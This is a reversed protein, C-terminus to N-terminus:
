PEGRFRRRARASMGRRSDQRFHIRSKVYAPM